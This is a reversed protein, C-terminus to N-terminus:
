FLRNKMNFIALRKGDLELIIESIGAQLNTVLPREIDWISINHKSLLKHHDFLLVNYQNTLLVLNFSSKM